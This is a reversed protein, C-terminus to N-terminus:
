KPIPPDAIKQLFAFLYSIDFEPNIKSISDFLYPRIIVTNLSFRKDNAIM